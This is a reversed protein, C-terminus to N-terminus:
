INKPNKKGLIESTHELTERRTHEWSALPRYENSFQRRSNNLFSFQIELNNLDKTMQSETAVHIDNKKKKFFNKPSM